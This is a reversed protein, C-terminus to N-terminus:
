EGLAPPPPRVDVRVRDLTADELCGVVRREANPGLAPAVTLVISGPEGRAFAATAESSQSLARCSMWLSEAVPMVEPGGDRLEIYLLYSSSSGAVPAPDPRTQTLEILVLVFVWLFLGVVMLIAVWSVMRGRAVPSPRVLDRDLGGASTDGSGVALPELRRVVDETGGWSGSVAAIREVVYALASLIVGVGLLVPVFVSLRDGPELWAFPGTSAADGPEDSAPAESPPAPVPLQDLRRELRGMRRHLSTTALAVEAAVFFLGSILARNWEWRYLYVLMYVGSAVLVVVALLQLLARAVRQPTM